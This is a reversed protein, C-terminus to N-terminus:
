FEYGQKKKREYSWTGSSGESFPVSANEDEGDGVLDKLPWAAGGCSVQERSLEEM